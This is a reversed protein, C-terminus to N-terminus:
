QITATLNQRQSGTIYRSVRCRCLSPTALWRQRAVTKKAPRPSSELLQLWRNAEAPVAADGLSNPSNGRGHGLSSEFRRRSPDYLGHCPAELRAVVGRPKDAHPFATERMVSAVPTEYTVTDLASKQLRRDSARPNTARRPAAAGDRRPLHRM